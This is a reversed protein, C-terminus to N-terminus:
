YASYISAGIDYKRGVSVLRESYSSYKEDFEDKSVEEGNIKYSQSMDESDLAEITYLMGNDYESIIRKWIGMGGASKFIIGAGPIVSAKGYYSGIDGCNVLSGGSVTYLDAPAYKETSPSVILEPVGNGDIDVLDYMATSSGRYGSLVGNYIDKWDPQSPPEPEPEPTPAPAPAPTPEYANTQVIAKVVPATTEEPETEARTESVASTVAADSVYQESVDQRDTMQVSISIEGDSSNNAPNVLFFLGTGAAAAALATIAIVLATNTSKKNEHVYSENSHMDAYDASKNTDTNEQASNVPKDYAPMVPVDTFNYDCLICIRANDENEGNCVPCNKMM